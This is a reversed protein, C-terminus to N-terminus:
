VLLMSRNLHSREAMVSGGLKIGVGLFDCKSEIGRGDCELGM